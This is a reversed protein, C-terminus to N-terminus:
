RKTAVVLAPVLVGDRIDRALQPDTPRLAGAASRGPWPLAAIDRLGADELSSMLGSLTTPSWPQPATAAFRPKHRGEWFVETLALAGGPRLVRAIEGAMADRDRVHSAAGLLWVQDSSSSRIPLTDASGVLFAAGSVARRSAIRVLEEVVDAGVVTCGVTQALRRAPGGVGCGVDLVIHERATRVITAIRDVM